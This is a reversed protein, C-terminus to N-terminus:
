PCSSADAHPVTGECLDEPFMRRYLRDKAADSWVSRKTCGASLREGGLARVVMRDLAPSANGSPSGPGDLVNSLRSQSVM